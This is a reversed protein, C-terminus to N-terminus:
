RGERIAQGNPCVCPALVGIDKDLFFVRGRTDIWGHNGCLTCIQVQQDVYHALWYRVVSDDIM